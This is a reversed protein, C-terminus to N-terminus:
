KGTVSVRRRLEGFFNEIFVVHSQSQRADQGDAPLVVVFRKGNPALDVNRSASFTNALTKDSCLRPKDPVFTDGQVTYGAVMIRNDFSEFLLERGSRSWM